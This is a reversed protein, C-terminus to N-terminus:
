GEGMFEIGATTGDSYAICKWPARQAGVGVRVFTGAESFESVLLVVVPNNTVSTVDRLCAQEAPTPTGTQAASGTGSSPAAAEVLFEGAVWGTADGDAIQCWRRGEAMRCGRNEVVMGNPIRAVTPASTSPSSRVNLATTVNVSWFDPGGQLGDAYDGQVVAGQDGTISVDLRFDGRQGERAANRYLYVAITYDGSQPLVGDFRNIDPMMPGTLTGAALAQDGLGTGPAYVNFYTSTNASTLTVKMRQGAEAGLKYLVTGRGIVTDTITTGTTGAAFQVTETRVDDQASSWTPAIAITGALIIAAITRM